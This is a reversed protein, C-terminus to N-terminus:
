FGTSRGWLFASHHSSPGQSQTLAAARGDEPKSSGIPLACQHELTCSVDTVLGKGLGAHTSPVQPVLVVDVDTSTTHLLYPAYALILGNIRRIEASLPGPHPDPSGPSIPSVIAGAPYNFYMLEKAGYVLSAMTQWRMQAGTPQGVGRISVPEFCDWM